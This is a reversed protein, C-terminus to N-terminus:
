AVRSMRKPRQADAMFHLYERWQRFARYQRDCAQQWQESGIQDAALSMMQETALDLENVLERGNPMDLSLPRM